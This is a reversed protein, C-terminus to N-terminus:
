RPRPTCARPSPAPPRAPTRLLEGWSGRALAAAARRASQGWEEMFPGPDRPSWVAFIKPRRYPALFRALTLQERHPQLTSRLLDAHLHIWVGPWGTPEMRPRRGEIMDDLLMRALDMGGRRLLANFVSSRGNVEIFRFVGDRPDLKFEADAFGRFGICRLIEVAPEVLSRMGHAIEAVRAIGFGAPSQRLKRVTLAASPEGRADLFLCCAYILHDPGPVLDDVRGSLGSEALLAVARELQARDNAVLLKCGFRPTFRYGRDPKVVVPFAIDSRAATAPMAPGYSKVAPVGVAEVVRQMQSKDLLAPVAAPPPAILHYSRSLREHHASLCELAAENCPFVARGSWRRASRELLAALDDPQEALAPLHVHEDCCRSRHAMDHPTSTVVAVRLGQAALSRAVGLGNVHGGVVVAGRLERAM